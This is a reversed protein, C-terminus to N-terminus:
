KAGAAHSQDVDRFGDSSIQYQVTVNAHAPSKAITALRQSGEWHLHLRINLAHGWLEGLAPVLRSRGGGLLRTTMQNTVVVAVDHGTAVAALQLAVGGLHRTRASLDDLLPRFPAAMGDMVLLRVKPRAALISPLLRLEALLEVYDHCRVVYTNSLITDVTFTEMAVRQEEDEALLSCHTVAAAALEAFRQLVFTGETDMFIVEGGVGGFCQPVQVDVALQLCLQTKGIGPVGYIETTKGLPVGGGLAGDLSSCFTIISQLEAEKQLLQLASMSPPPVGQELEALVAMAEQQSVGAERSLQPAKLNMLDSIFHFGATVLKAKVASSLPLTSLPRQM